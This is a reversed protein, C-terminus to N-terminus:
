FYKFKVSSDKVKRFTSTYKKKMSKKVKIIASKHIKKFANKEAKSIVKSNIQINKLNKCKYFAGQRVIKVNSGIILKKISNKEKFARKGIEVVKFKVKKYTVTSPIAVTKLKRSMGTVMVTNTGRYHKTVKYKIHNVTFTKGKYNVPPKHASKSQAIAQALKQVMSDADKQVTNANSLMVKAQELIKKLNVDHARAAEKDGEAIKVRLASLDARETLNGIASQLKASATKVDSQRVHQNQYVSRVEGLIKTFSNWSDPTYLNVNKGEAIKIVAGLESRNVNIRSGLFEEMASTLIGIEENLIEDYNDLLEALSQQGEAAEPYETGAIEREILEDVSNKDAATQQEKQVKMNQEVADQREKQVETNQQDSSYQQDEQGYLNQYVEPQQESQAEMNQNAESQQESQAEMNQNAESQQEEEAKREQVVTLREYAARADATKKCLVDYQSQAYQGDYGETGAPYLNAKQEQVISEAQSILKGFAEIGTIYVLNDIATQLEAEAQDLIEQKVPDSILLKDAANMKEAFASWSEETYAKEAKSRAVALLEQLASGDCKEIQICAKLEKPNACSYPIKLIGSITQVEPSSSRYEESNWVVRANQDTGDDLTINVSEPLPLSNFKTGNWVLITKQEQVATIERDNSVEDFNVHDIKINDISLSGYDGENNKAYYQFSIIGQSVASGNCTLNWTDPETKGKEWIRTDTKNGSSSIKITYWKGYETTVDNTTALISSNGHKITYIDKWNPLYELRLFNGGDDKFHLYLGESSGAGLKTDFRMDFTIDYNKYKGKLSAISNAGQSHLQLVKNGNEEVIKATKVADWPAQAKLDGQEYDEFDVTIASGQDVPPQEADGIIEVDWMNSQVKAASVTFLQGKGNPIKDPMTFRIEEESWSSVATDKMTYLIGNINIQVAGAVSGFNSGRVKVEQGQKLSDSVGTIVPAEEPVEDGLIDSYEPEIGAKLVVDALRKQNDTVPNSNANRFIRRTGSAMQELVNDKVTFGESGEDLFIACVPAPQTAPNYGIDHIYNNVIQSNPQWSLTYIGAGDSMLKVADYIENYRIVNYEMPTAKHQLWGWGVTIGTYPTNHILNHEITLAQPYGAGIAVSGLYDTGINSIHNNSITDDRNIERPDEPEYPNHFEVDPNNFVATLIGTNSIDHITNGIVRSNRTGYHLDLGVSGMNFIENREFVFNTTCAVYVGASARGIWQNNPKETRTNYLGAQANIFGNDNPYLWNTYAFTLGRIEMDEVPDDFTGKVEWLTEVVPVTFTLDAAKEGDQPMYYLDGTTNNLFWEGPQDLFELANELYYPDNERLQSYGRKNLIDNEEEQISVLNVGSDENEVISDFRVYSDSWHQIIVAEVQKLMDPEIVSLDFDSKKVRLKYRDADKNWRARFFNSDDGRDKTLDKTTARVAKEGDVYLQRFRMDGVNTRYIGNGNDQWTGTLTQGGSIVPKQDDAAMYIVKYGNTGSDRGDFAITHDLVYTGENIVVKIDGNMDQNNKRVEDRAREITEFPKEISGDGSVDNGKLDVYFSREEASTIDEYDTEQPIEEYEEAAMVPISTCIVSLAVALAMVQKKRKM